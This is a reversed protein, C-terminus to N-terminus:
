WCRVNASVPNGNADLASQAGDQGLLLTECDTDEAQTGTATAALLYRDTNPEDATSNDGDSDAFSLTYYGQTSNAQGYVAVITAGTYSGNNNARFRELANAVSTLATKADARRSKRASDLYAPYAIAGLIGVVMVAIMLEILTFGALHRHRTPRRQPRHPPM